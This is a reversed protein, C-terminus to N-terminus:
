RKLFSIIEKQSLNNILLFDDYINEIIDKEPKILGIEISDIKYKGFYKQITAEKIETLEKFIKNLVTADQYKKSIFILCDKKRIDVLCIRTKNTKYLQIESQSIYFGKLSSINKVELNVLNKDITKIDFEHSKKNSSAVENEININNLFNHVIIEAKEGSKIKNEGISSTGGSTKKGYKYRSRYTYKIPKEELKEKLNKRTNHEKKRQLIIYREDKDYSELNYIGKYQQTNKRVTEFFYIDINKNVIADFYRNNWNTFNYKIRSCDEELYENLIQTGEKSFKGRVVVSEINNKEDKISLFGASRTDYIGALFVLDFTSYLNDIILDNPISINYLEKKFIQEFELIIDEFPILEFKHMIEATKNNKSSVAHKLYKYVDGTKKFYLLYTNASKTQNYLHKIEEEIEKSIGVFGNEEYNLYFRKVPTITKEIVYQASEIM